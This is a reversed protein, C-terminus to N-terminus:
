AFQRSRTTFFIDHYASGDTAILFNDAFSVTGDGVVNRIKCGVLYSSSETLSSAHGTLAYKILLSLLLWPPPQQSPVCSWCSQGLLFGLPNPNGGWLGGGAHLFYLQRQEEM